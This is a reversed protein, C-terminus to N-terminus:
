KRRNIEDIFNIYKGRDKFKIYIEKHLPFIIFNKVNEKPKNLMELLVSNSSIPIELKANLM